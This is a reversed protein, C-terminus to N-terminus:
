KTGYMLYGSKEENEVLANIFAMLFQDYDVLHNIIFQGVTDNFCKLHTPELALFMVPIRSEIRELPIMDFFRPHLSYEFIYKPLSHDSFYYNNVSM